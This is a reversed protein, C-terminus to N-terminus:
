QRFCENERPLSYSKVPVFAIVNGILHTRRLQAPHNVPLM